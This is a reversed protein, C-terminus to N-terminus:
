NGSRLKIWWVREERKTSLIKLNKLKMMMRKDKEKM